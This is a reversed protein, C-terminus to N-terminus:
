FDHLTYRLARIPVEFSLILIISTLEESQELGVVPWALDIFHSIPADPPFILNGFILLFRPLSGCLFITNDIFLHSVAVMSM